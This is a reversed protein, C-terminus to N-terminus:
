TRRRAATPACSRSTIPRTTGRARTRPEHRSTSRPRYVTSTASRTSTSCRTTVGTVEASLARHIRRRLGLRRRRVAAPQTQTRTWKTVYVFSTPTVQIASADPPVNAAIGWHNRFKDQEDHYTSIKDKSTAQWTVRVANSRSTAMTSAPVAPTRARLQVALPRRRLLQRRGDQERGLAPLHLQVLGQGQLIPGGISPNFDWIKQIEGVNTLPQEPQVHSRRGPQARLNSPRRLATTPTTPRTVSAASRTAATRRCWTSACAARAWKRRTPAPSTASNRSAATTGTSAATSAAARVPQEPPPRRGDAGHRRLRPVSAAVAAPQRLRRRRAVARRRRGAALSTGPIM